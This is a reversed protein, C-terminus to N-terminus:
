KPAKSLLERRKDKWEYVDKMDGICCGCGEIIDADDLCEVLEKIYALAEDLNM